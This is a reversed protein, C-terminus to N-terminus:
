HIPSEEPQPTPASTQPCNANRLAEVLLDVDTMPATDGIEELRERVWQANSIAVDTREYIDQPPAAGKKYDSIM